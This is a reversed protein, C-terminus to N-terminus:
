VSVKRFWFCGCGYEQADALEKSANRYFGGNNAADTVLAYEILALGSFYEVIQAYSYIRHANFVIRPNGSVPVVFLLNGNVALVRKLEAIAKLDGAPDLPDGYRGLGVHEVVHMCSLSCISEDAFPLASLDAFESSLNELKLGAPRYDYYRVPIFASVTTCFHLSSSIDVHCVPNTEAIIRAAWAPHYVYHWDFGTVQTNDYLFARRQNWRMPFRRGTKLSEQKFVRYQNIFKIKRGTKEFFGFLLGFIKMARSIM